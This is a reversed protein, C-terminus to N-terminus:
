RRARRYLRGMRVAPQQGPLRHQLDAALRGRQWAAVDGTSATPGGGSPTASASAAGKERAKKAADHHRHSASPSAPASGIGSYFCCSPAVSLASGASQGAHQRSTDATVKVPQTVVHMGVLGVAVLAATVPAVILLLRTRRRRRPGAVGEETEPAGAAPGPAVRAHRPLTSRM